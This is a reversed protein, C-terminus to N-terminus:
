SAPYTADLDVLFLDEPRYDIDLLRESSGRLLPVYGRGSGDNRPPQVSVYPTRCPHETVFCM